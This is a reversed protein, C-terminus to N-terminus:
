ILIQYNELGFILFNFFWVFMLDFSWWLTYDYWNWSLYIKKRSNNRQWMNTSSRWNSHLENTWVIIHNCLKDFFFCLELWYRNQRHKRSYTRSIKTLMLHCTTTTFNQQRRSGFLFCDVYYGSFNTFKKAFGNNFCSVHSTKNIIKGQFCLLRVNFGYYM